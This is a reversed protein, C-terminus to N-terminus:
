ACMAIVVRNKILKVCTACFPVFEQPRGLEFAIEKTGNRDDIMNLIQLQRSTLSLLPDLRRHRGQM